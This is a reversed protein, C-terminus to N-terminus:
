AYTLYLIVTLETLPMPYIFQLVSLHLSNGLTGCSSLLRVVMVGMVQFLSGLEWHAIGPIDLGHWSECPTRTKWTVLMGLDTTELVNKKEIAHLIMAYRIIPPM